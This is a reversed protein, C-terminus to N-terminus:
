QHFKLFYSFQKFSRGLSLGIGAQWHSRLISLSQWHFGIQETFLSSISLVQKCGRSFEYVHREAPHPTSRPTTYLLSLYLVRSVQFRTFFGFFPLFQFLVFSLLFSTSLGFSQKVLLRLHARVCANSGLEPGM